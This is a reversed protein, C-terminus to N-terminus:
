LAGFCVVRFVNVSFLPSKRQATKDSTKDLARKAEAIGELNPIYIYLSKVDITALYTEEPINNGTEM